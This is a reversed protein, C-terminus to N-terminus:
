YVLVGLPERRRAVPPLRLLLSLVFFFILLDDHDEDIGAGAGAGQESGKACHGQGGLVAAQFVPVEGKM